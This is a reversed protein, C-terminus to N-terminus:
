GCREDFLPACAAPLTMEPDCLQADSLSNFAEFCAEADGVTAPCGAIVGEDFDAKCDAIEGAVEAPDIGVTVSSGGGCDVTREPQEQLGIFYECIDAAQSATLDVLLTNGPVGSGGGGSGGGCAFVLLSCLVVSGLKKM